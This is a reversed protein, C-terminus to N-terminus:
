LEDAAIGPTSEDPEIVAVGSQSQL